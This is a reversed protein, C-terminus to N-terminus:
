EPWPRPSSPIQNRLNVGRASCAPSSSMIFWSAHVVFNSCAFKLFVIRIFIFLMLANLCYRDRPISRRDHSHHRRHMAQGSGGVTAVHCGAFFTVLNLAPAQRHSQVANGSIEAEDEASVFLWPRRGGAQMGLGSLSWGCISLGTREEASALEMARLSV